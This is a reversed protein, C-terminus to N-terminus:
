GHPATMAAALALGWVHEEFVTEYWGDVSGAAAAALEM